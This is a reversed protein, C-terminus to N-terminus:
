RGCCRWAACRRDQEAGRPDLLRAHRRRRPQRRPRRRRPPRFRPDGGAARRPPALRRADAHASRGLRRCPRRAGARDAGAQVAGHLHPQPARVRVAAAALAGAPQRHVLRLAAPPGRIGAHLAFAHRGRDRRVPRPRLRLESLHVLGDGTRPHPPTSSATSCRIACTSTARRWTSRPACCAPATRSSAPGCAASCTSTRRSAASASRATAAPETLTGRNARMEDQSQDDVYAKGARILHEAWEYLQEFYDPPTTSTFSHRALEPPKVPIPQTPSTHEGPVKSQAVPKEDIGFVPKGTTRDLIYMHIRGQRDAGAGPDEEGQRHPRAPGARAAPGYGVFRSSGGPLVVEDKGTNIDLAVVSNGFLNPGQRDFGYFDSAPSGFTTFLTDTKEDVTMFFGWNNVGTRDKWEDGTWAEHGPEGPRPM